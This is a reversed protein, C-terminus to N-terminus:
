DNTELMWKWAPKVIIQYTVGDQNLEIKDSEELTLILGSKLQYTQMADLLGSFERAKTNPDALSHTVQIVQTIESAEKLIFDCEKKGHHFYIEYRLRKLHRYVCSELIRGKDESFRFSVANALGTDIMYIKKDNSYQTKLSFDFKYVEDFLFVEKMYSIYDSVTNAHLGLMSATKRYSLMKTSNTALYIALDRLKTLNVDHRTAIDKYLFDEFYSSLLERQFVPRLAIAPFAGTNLYQNFLNKIQSERAKSVPLKVNRMNKFPLYESFSLPSITLKINRGTLLEAYEQKILCSNSGTIWIQELEKRDYFKRIFPVWDGCQQVEDILLYDVSSRQLYAYYIESLTHTRLLEDEFNVYLVSKGQSVAHQVIQYLLTSKGSRRVGELIKIEPIALYSIVDYSREIGVLADPVGDLLWPNWELLASIIADSM